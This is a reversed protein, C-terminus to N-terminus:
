EEFHFIPKYQVSSNTEYKIAENVTIQDKIIVAGGYLSDSVNL